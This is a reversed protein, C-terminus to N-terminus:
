ITIIGFTQGKKQLTWINNLLPTIFPTRFRINHNQNYFLYQM